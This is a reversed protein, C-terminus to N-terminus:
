MSRELMVTRMFTREMVVAIIRLIITKFTGLIRFTELTLQTEVLTIRDEDFEVDDDDYLTIAGGNQIAQEANDEDCMSVLYIM